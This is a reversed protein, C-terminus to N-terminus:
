SVETRKLAVLNRLSELGTMVETQNKLMGDQFKEFFSYNKLITLLIGRCEIEKVSIIIVCIIRLLSFTVQVELTDYEVCFYLCLEIM